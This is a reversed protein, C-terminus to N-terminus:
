SWKGAKRGKKFIFWAGVIAAVAVGITVIKGTKTAWYEKFQEIMKKM